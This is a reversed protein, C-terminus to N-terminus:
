FHFYHKKRELENEEMFDHIEIVGDPSAVAIIIQPNELTKIQNFDRM